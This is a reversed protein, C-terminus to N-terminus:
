SEIMRKFIALSGTHANEKRKAIHHVERFSDIYNYVMHKFTRTFYGIPNKMLTRNHEFEHTKSFLAASANALINNFVDQDSLLNC